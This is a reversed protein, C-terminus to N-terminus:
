SKPLYIMKPTRMKMDPVMLKVKLTPYKQKVKAPVMFNLEYQNDLRKSLDRFYPQFSM